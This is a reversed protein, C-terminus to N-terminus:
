EYVKQAFLYGMSIIKLHFHYGNMYQSAQFLIGWGLRVDTYVKMISTIFTTLVFPTYRWGGFRFYTTLLALLLATLLTLTFSM